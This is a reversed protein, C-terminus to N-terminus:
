DLPDLNTEAAELLQDLDKLMQHMEDNTTYINEDTDALEALHVTMEIIEKKYADVVVQRLSALFVKDVGTDVLIELIDEKSHFSYSIEDLTFQLRKTTKDYSWETIVGKCARISIPQTTTASM